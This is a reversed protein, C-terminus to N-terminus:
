MTGRRIRPDIYGYILDAILNALIVTITIIVFCGQLVPYDRKLVADYILKGMGPWSFVVEVEIAGGVMWGINLAILTVVPLLANRVAHDKLITLSRLGKAKATLIYDEKMVDLMSGRMLIVYEGAYWLVLAVTPLFMHKLIDLWKPIGAGGGITTIGGVPFWGLWLSFVMLLVIGIWFTPVMYSILSATLLAADLKSGRKWGCIAGVAIGVVTSIAIAVSLLLLTQPLRQAIIQSVPVNHVFSMGFNGKFSEKLYILFQQWLPKDLGLQKRVLEINEKKLRPDNLLLKAPDGPMIRFIFFNATLTVFITLITILAKKILFRWYSNM